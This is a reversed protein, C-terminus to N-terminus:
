QEQLVTHAWEEKSARSTEHSGSIDTAKLKCFNIKCEIRCSTTFGAPRCNSLLPVCPDM